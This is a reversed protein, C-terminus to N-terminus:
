PQSKRQNSNKRAQQRHTSSPARAKIRFHIQQNLTAPCRIFLDPSRNKTLPSHITIQQPANCGKVSSTVWQHADKRSPRKRVDEKSVYNAFPIIWGLNRAPHAHGMKHQSTINTRQKPVATSALVLGDSVMQNQLYRGLSSAQKHRTSHVESDLGATRVYWFNAFPLSLSHAFWTQRHVLVVSIQVKQDSM